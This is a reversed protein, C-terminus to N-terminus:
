MKFFLFRIKNKKWLFLWNDWCQENVLRDKGQQFISGDKDCVLSGEKLKDLIFFQIIM